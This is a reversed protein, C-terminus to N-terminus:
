LNVKARRKENANHQSVTLTMVAGILMFIAIFFHTAFLTVALIFFAANRSTNKKIFYYSAIYGIAVATALMLFWNPTNTSIETYLTIVCIVHLILGILIFNEGAKNSKLNPYTKLHSM